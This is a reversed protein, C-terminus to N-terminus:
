AVKNRDYAIVARAHRALVASDPKPLWDPALEIKSGQVPLKESLVSFRPKLFGNMEGANRIHQHALCAEMWCGIDAAVGNGLVPEMGLARIRAIMKAARDLGGTKMLKLKLHTACALEAAREIDEMDYISEDLMMPLDRDRAIKSVAQAANWDGAACPQEVLEIGSPDVSRVFHCAASQDYGQNGDLRLLARGDVLDQILGVRALDAEVDFGIKVKLTGYGEELRRLVETELEKGKDANLVALIPVLRLELSQLLAHGEAMEIATTLATVSFPNTHLSAALREKATNGDLGLLGPAATCVFSWARDPLEETYGALPTAEGWGTRGDDATVEAFITDFGEVSGFALKYPKALPLRLSFLRVKVILM